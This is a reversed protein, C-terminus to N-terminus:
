KFVQGEDFGNSARELVFAIGHRRRDLRLCDRLKEGAPIQQPDGLGAGALGGSERQRDQLPEGFRSALGSQLALGGATKDQGRGALQRELDAVAKAGIPAVEPQAREDDKAADALVRLHRPHRAADIDQGRGRSPQEIQDSLTMEAEVCDVRHHEIFGSSM